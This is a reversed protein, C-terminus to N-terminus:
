IEGLILILKRLLKIAQVEEMKGILKWKQAIEFRKLLLDLNNHDTRDNLHDMLLNKVSNHSRRLIEINKNRKIRAKKSSKKKRLKKLM